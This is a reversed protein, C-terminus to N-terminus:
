RRMNVNLSNRLILPVRRPGFYKEPVPFIPPIEFFHGNRFGTLPTKRPKKRIPKLNKKRAPDLTSVARANKWDRFALPEKACRAGGTFSHEFNWRTGAQQRAM